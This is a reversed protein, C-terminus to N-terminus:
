EALLLLIAQLNLVVRVGLPKADLPKTLCVRRWVVEGDQSAFHDVVKAGGEVVEYVLQGPFVGPLNLLPRLERDLFTKGHETLSAAGPEPADTGRM